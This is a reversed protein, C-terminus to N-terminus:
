ELGSLFTLLERAVFKAGYDNLHGSDSAYGPFLSYFSVGAKSHEMRSGDPKTSEIEALDFVTSYEARIMENYEQRKINRMDRSIDRGIFRKIRTKIDMRLTTLPVTFHVFKVDPYRKELEGIKLKYQDFLESVDTDENIDVYCFKVFAIDLHEGFGSSINSYFDDIKLNPKENEGIESHIFATGGPLVNNTEVVDLEATLLEIGKIINYGVSQHGFYISKLSVKDVVESSVSINDPNLNMDVEDCATIFFFLFGFFYIPMKM